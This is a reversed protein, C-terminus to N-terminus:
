TLFEDLVEVLYTLEPISLAIIALKAFLEIQSAISGYGAERCLAASFDAIYTIGLIKLLPMLYSTEIPLREMIDELFDAIIQIQALAYIFILIGAAIAILLAYEGHQKKLPMALFVAVLGILGIKLIAM